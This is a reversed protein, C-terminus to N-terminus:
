VTEIEHICMNVEGLDIDLVQAINLVSSLKPDSDGLEIMELGRDSLGSLEAVQKITLGKRERKDRVIKGFNRALVVM